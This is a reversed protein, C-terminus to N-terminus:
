ERDECHYAILVSCTSWSSIDASHESPCDASWRLSQCDRISPLKFSRLPGGQRRLSHKPRARPLSPKAEEEVTHDWRCDADAEKVVIYKIPPLCVNEKKVSASRTPLGKSRMEPTTCRRFRLCPPCYPDPEEGNIDAIIADLAVTDVTWADENSEMSLDFADRFSLPTVNWLSSSDSWVSLDDQGDTSDPAVTERDVAKTSKATKRRFYSRIRRAANRVSGKLTSYVTM